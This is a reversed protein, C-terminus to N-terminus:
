EVAFRILLVTVIIIASILGMLGIDNAIHELKQQLPTISEDEQKLKIKIKGIVSKEGTTIIVMKGNGTLIFTGSM